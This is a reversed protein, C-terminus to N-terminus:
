PWRLRGRPLWISIRVLLLLVLLCADHQLLCCSQLAWASFSVKKRLQYNLEDLELPGIENHHNEAAWTGSM